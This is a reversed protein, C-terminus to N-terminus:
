RYVRTMYDMLWALNPDRIAVLEPVTMRPVDNM